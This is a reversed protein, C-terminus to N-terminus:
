RFRRGSLRVKKSYLIKYRFGFQEIAKLMDIKKISCIYRMYRYQLAMYQHFELSPNITKWSM